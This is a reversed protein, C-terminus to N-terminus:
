KSRKHGNPCDSGARSRPDFRTDSSQPSTNTLREGRPLTSRFETDIPKGEAM